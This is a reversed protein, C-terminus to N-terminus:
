QCLVFLIALVRDLLTHPLIEFGSHSVLLSIICDVENSMSAVVTLSWFAFAAVTIIRKKRKRERWENVCKCTSVHESAKRICEKVFAYKCTRM